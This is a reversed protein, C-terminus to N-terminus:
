WGLTRLYDRSDRAAELSPQGNWDDQEVIVYEAGADVSAALIEPFNQIGKGVPRFAFAQSAVQKDSDTGILAYMNATKHGVFDKLHVVPARGSYKRLYAAPDEGSVRVWCTDLETQLLNAPIKAYLYDLAYSGDPMRVFEFDHNHYLLQVGKEECVKGIEAIKQVVADFQGAEPRLEKPLYPVAIFRVGVKCYADVVAATDGTLEALPVHASVATLDAEKLLASFEEPTHGYLGALEVCTYGMARVEHLTAALDREAADRVTYLQLGVPLTKM